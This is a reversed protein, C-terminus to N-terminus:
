LTINTFERIEKLKDLFFKKYNKNLFEESLREREEYLKSEHELIQEPRFKFGVVKAPNGAVIAYPPVNTRVVSGAGIVAGRGINVGQTLTVRSGVWVDENIIIPKSYDGNVDLKKKIEDNVERHLMGVVPMHNGCTALLGIAIRSNKKIIFEGGRGNMIVADGNISTNDEMFLYDPSSVRVNPGINASPAVNVYHIQKEGLLVRKALRYIKERIIM